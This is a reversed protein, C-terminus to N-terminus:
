LILSLEDQDRGVGRWVGRHCLPDHNEVAPYVQFRPSSLLLVLPVTASYFYPVFWEQLRSIVAIAVVQRLDSKSM